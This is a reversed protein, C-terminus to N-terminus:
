IHSTDKYYPSIQVCVHVSPSCPSPFGHRAPSGAFWPTGSTALLAGALWPLPPSLSMRLCRVRQGSGELVSPCHAPTSAASDTANTPAAGPCPSRSCPQGHQRLVGHNQREGQAKAGCTMGRATEGHRRGWGWGTLTMSLALSGSCEQQHHRGSPHLPAPSCGSAPLELCEGGDRGRGPRRKGGTKSLWLPYRRQRLHKRGPVRGHTGAAPRRHAGCQSSRHGLFALQQPYELAGCSEERTTAQNKAPYGQLVKIFINDHECQLNCIATLNALDRIGWSHPVSLFHRRARGEPRASRLLLQRSRFNFQISPNLAM